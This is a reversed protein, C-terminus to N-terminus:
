PKTGHVINWTDQLQLDTQAHLWSQYWDPSSGTYLPTLDDILDQRTLQQPKDFQAALAQLQDAISM